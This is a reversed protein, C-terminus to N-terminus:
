GETNTVWREVVESFHAHELQHVKQAITEPTDESDLTCTAQFLIQGKDYEENCVHITIGTQTDKAHWVAEHVKAGYMGKGGYNPLLAPHINVVKDTYKKLLYSPVLWLFGALVVHTVKRQELLVLIEASDYFYAKDPILFTEVGRAAAKDLVSAGKKNCVVLVVEITSHTSFYDMMTAANSGTGSAFIALRINKDEM